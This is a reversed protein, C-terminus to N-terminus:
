GTPRKFHTALQALEVRLVSHFRIAENLKSTTQWWPNWKDLRNGPCCAFRKVSNKCRSTSANGSKSNETQVDGNLEM